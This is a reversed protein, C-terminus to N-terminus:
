GGGKEPVEFGASFLAPNGLAAPHHRAGDQQDVGASIDALQAQQMHLRPRAPEPDAAREDVLAHAERALRAIVTDAEPGVGHEGRRPPDVLFGAEADDRGLDMVFEALRLLALGPLQRQLASGNLPAMASRKVKATAAVSPLARVPVIEIRRPSILVGAKMGTPVAAVTLAIFGASTRALPASMM